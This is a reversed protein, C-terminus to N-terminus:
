RSLWNWGQTYLIGTLQKDNVTQMKGSIDLLWKGENNKGVITLIENKNNVFKTM